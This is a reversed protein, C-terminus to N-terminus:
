DDDLERVVDRMEQWFEQGDDWQYVDGYELADHIKKLLGQVRQIKKDAEEAVAMAQDFDVLPTNNEDVSYYTETDFVSQMEDRIDETM